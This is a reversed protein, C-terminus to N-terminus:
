KHLKKVDIAGADCLRKFVVAFEQRSMSDSPRTGDLVSINKAFKWADEAWKAAETEIKKVDTDAAQVNYYYKEAIERIRNLDWVGPCSTPVIDMHRVLPLIGWDRWIDAVLQGVTEYDEATAEPRCEIGISQLNRQWDGAHYATDYPSVICAVKGAEVVYHASTSCAPNTCFWRMVSDFTQGRAGWHHIVIEVISNGQRGATWQLADKDTLYQYHSSQGVNGVTM